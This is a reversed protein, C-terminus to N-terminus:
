LTDGGGGRPGGPLFTFENKGASLSRALSVRCGGVCTGRQKPDVRGPVISKWLLWSDALLSGSRGLHLCTGTCYGGGGGGGKVKRGGRCVEKGRSARRLRRCDKQAALLCGASIGGEV